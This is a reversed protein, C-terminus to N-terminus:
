GKGDLYKWQGRNKRFRSKEHLELLEGEYHYQAVFEVKGKKDDVGGQSSSLITLNRWKMDDVTDDLEQQLNKGRKDPHTSFVLYDVLRFFYASYRSRMMQKATSAHAKGIHLPRCCDHYITGSGCPCDTRSRIKLLKDDNM